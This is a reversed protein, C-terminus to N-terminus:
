FITFQMNQLPRKIRNDAVSDHKARDLLDGFKPNLAVLAEHWYRRWEPDINGEMKDLRVTFRRGSLYDQVPPKTRVDGRNWVIPRCNYGTNWAMQILLGLSVVGVLEMKQNDFKKLANYHDAPGESTVHVSNRFSRVFGSDIIITEPNQRAILTLLRYHDMIHYYVGLCFVTSFQKENRLVLFDFM